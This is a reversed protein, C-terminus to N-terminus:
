QQNMWTLSPVRHSKPRVESGSSGMCCGSHWPACSLCWVPGSLEEPWLCNCHNAGEPKWCHQSRRAPAAALTPFACDKIHFTKLWFWNFLSYHFFFCAPFHFVSPPKLNRLSNWHRQCDRGGTVQGFNLLLETAPSAARNPGKRKGRNM